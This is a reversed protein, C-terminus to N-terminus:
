EFVWQGSVLKDIPPGLLLLSVAQAPAVYSLMENSTLGNSQLCAPRHPPGPCPRPPAAAARKSPGCPCPAQVWSGKCCGAGASAAAAPPGGQQRQRHQRLRQGGARGAREAWPGSSRVQQMSRVLIQQMGSAAVSAGAILLGLMTADFNVEEM